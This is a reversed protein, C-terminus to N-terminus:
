PEYAVGIKPAAKIIWDDHMKVRYGRMTDNETLDKLQKSIGDLTTRFEGFEKKLGNFEVKTPFYDKLVEAIRNIDQDTIM